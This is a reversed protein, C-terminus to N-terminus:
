YCNGLLPSLETTLAPEAEGGRHGLQATPSGLVHGQCLSVARSDTATSAPLSSPVALHAWGLEGWWPEDEKTQKQQISCWCSTGTEM